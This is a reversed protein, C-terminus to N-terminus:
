GYLVRKIKDITEENPAWGQHKFLEPDREIVWIASSDFLKFPLQEKESKSIVARCVDPFSGLNFDHGALIGQPKLRKFWCELDNEVGPSEHDGDIFLLDILRDDPWEVETSCGEIATINPCDKTNKQFTSFELKMGEKYGAMSELDEESLTYKPWPDVCNVQVSSDCSKALAWSSRGMFSGIEVILGNKPVQGALHELVELDRISMFGPIDVNYPM